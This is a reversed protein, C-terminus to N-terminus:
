YASRASKQLTTPRSRHLYSGRARFGRTQAKLGRSTGKGVIMTRMIQGAPTDPRLDTCGWRQLGQKKAPRREKLAESPPGATAPCRRPVRHAAAARVRAAQSCASVTHQKRAGYSRGRSTRRSQCHDRRSLVDVVQGGCSPTCSTAAPHRQTARRRATQGPTRRREITLRYPM